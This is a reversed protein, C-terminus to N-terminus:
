HEKEASTWAQTTPHNQNKKEKPPRLAFLPILHNEPELIYLHCHGATLAEQWLEASPSFLVHANQALIEQEDEGSASPFLLSSLIHESLM